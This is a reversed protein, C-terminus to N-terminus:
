QDFKLIVVYEPHMIATSYRKGKFARSNELMQPSAMFGNKTDKNVDQAFLM